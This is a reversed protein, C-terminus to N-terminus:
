APRAVAAALGLPRAQVGRRSAILELEVALDASAPGVSHERIGECAFLYAEALCAFTCRPDPLRMDYTCWYDPIRVLGGQVVRVDRRLFEGYRAPDVNWPQACDIVVAGQCPLDPTLRATPDSTLLVVIDARDVDQLSGSKQAGSAIQGLEWEVRSVSRGILILEFGAASLLSTAAFGVSGTCGVVAVKAATGLGFARSAETVNQRVVAATFSNGTTLTLGPPLGAVLTRGGLTAPATLAGLGVVRAGRKGALAVAEAIAQRGRRTLVQEPMLSVSVLEGRLVGFGFTIEGVVTPPHSLMKARFEEESASHQAIVSGGRFLHLDRVDRPHAIFAFAPARPQPLM